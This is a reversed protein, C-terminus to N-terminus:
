QENQDFWFVLSPLGQRGGGGNWRDKACGIEGDQREFSGDIECSKYGSRQWRKADAHSNGPLGGCRCAHRRCASKKAAAKSHCLGRDLKPICTEHPEERSQAAAKRRHESWPVAARCM